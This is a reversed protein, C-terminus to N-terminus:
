QGGAKKKPQDAKGREKAAIWADIESEYWAIRSSSVRVSQPFKREKMLRALQMRSYAIGKVSRLEPYIILRSQKPTSM